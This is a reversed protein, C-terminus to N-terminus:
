WLRAPVVGEHALLWRKRDLGGGYGVLRGDAGIVRHCPIVVPVPNAGNAAGVARVSEPRGIRRALEKYSVTTGPGVGRLARWVDQQFPTGAPDVALGDIADLQGAFYADFANRIAGALPGQRTPERRGMATSLGDIDGELFITVLVDGRAAIALPGMPTAYLSTILHPM